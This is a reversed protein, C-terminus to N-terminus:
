FQAPDPGSALGLHSHLARHHGKSERKIPRSSTIYQANIYCTPHTFGMVTIVLVHHTEGM